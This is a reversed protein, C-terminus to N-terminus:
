KENFILYSPNPEEAKLLDRYYMRVGATTKSIQTISCTKFFGKSIILGDQEISSHFQLINEPDWLNNERFLQFKKEREQKTKLSYLLSSSWIYSKLPLKQFHKKKGDWVLEFFVLEKQWEVFVCTFPEINKLDFEKVGEALIPLGLFKKLVVGRSVRYPPKPVHKVYGGNLLCAVRKRGSVGIWTGGALKDKPYLMKVGEEEHVKPQLTQRVVAEDRNSTLVFGDPIEPLPTLTVTCM